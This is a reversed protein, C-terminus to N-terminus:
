FLTWSKEKNKGIIRKLQASENQNILQIYYPTTCNKEKKALKCVLKGTPKSYGGGKKAPLSTDNSNVSMSLIATHKKQLSLTSYM